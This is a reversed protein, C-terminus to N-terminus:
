SSVGARLLEPLFSYFMTWFRGHAGHQLTEPLALQSTPVFATGRLSQAQSAAGQLGWCVGARLWTLARRSGQQVTACLVKLFAALQSRTYNYMHPKASRELLAHGTFSTLRWGASPMNTLLVQRASSDADVREDPALSTCFPADRFQQSM